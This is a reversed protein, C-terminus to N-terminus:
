NMEFDDSNCLQCYISMKTHSLNSFSNSKIILWILRFAIHWPFFWNVNLNAWSIVIELKNENFTTCFYCLMVLKTHLFVWFPGYISFWSFSIIFFSRSIHHYSFVLKSVHSNPVFYKIRNKFTVQIKQCNTRISM